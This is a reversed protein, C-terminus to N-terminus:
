QKIWTQEKPVGRLDCTLVIRDQQSNNAVSRHKLWSPWMVVDGTAVTIRHEFKNVGSRDPRHIPQTGLVLELPHEFVLQSSVDPVQVYVAAVVHGALGHNHSAIAGQYHYRTMFSQDIRPVLDPFYSLTQWYRQATEEIFRCLPKYQPRQHPMLQTQWGFIESDVSGLFYSDTKNTVVPTFDSDNCLNDLMATQPCSVHMIPISFLDYIM